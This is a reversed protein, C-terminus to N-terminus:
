SAGCRSVEGMVTIRQANNGLEPPGFPCIGSEYVKVNALLAKKFPMGRIVPSRTQTYEHHVIVSVCSISCGPQRSAFIQVTACEARIM